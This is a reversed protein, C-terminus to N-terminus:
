VCLVSHVRVVRCTSRYCFVSRIQDSRIMHHLFDSARTQVTSHYSLLERELTIHHEPPFGNWEWHVAVGFHSCNRKGGRAGDMILRNCSLYCRADLLPERVDEEGCLVGCVGTLSSSCCYQVTCFSESSEFGVPATPKRARAARLRECRVHRSSFHLPTSHHPTFGCWVLVTCSSRNSAGRRLEILCSYIFTDLVHPSCAVRSTDSYHFTRYIRVDCQAMCYVLVKNMIM